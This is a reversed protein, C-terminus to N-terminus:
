VALASDPRSTIVLDSSCVDSQLESTHEESRTYVYRVQKERSVNERPTRNEAM